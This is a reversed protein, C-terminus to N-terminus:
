PKPPSDKRELQEEALLRAADANEMLANPFVFGLSMLCVAIRLVNARRISALLENMKLPEEGRM